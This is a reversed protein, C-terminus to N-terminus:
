KRKYRELVEHIIEPSLQDRREAIVNSLEYRNIERNRKFSQNLLHDHIYFGNSIVVGITIILMILQAFKEKSWQSQSFSAGIFLIVAEFGIYLARYRFLQFHIGANILLIFLAIKGFLATKKRTVSFIFALFVSLVMGFRPLVEEIPLFGGEPGFITLLTAGTNKLINDVYVLMQLLFPFKVNDPYFIWGFLYGSESYDFAQGGFLIGRLLFYALISAVAAGTIWYRHERKTFWVIVIAALPIILGSEKSLFALIFLSTCLLMMPLRRIKRTSYLLFLTLNFILGVMITPRDSIWTAPSVAYMSTGFSAAALTAIWAPVKQQYLFTFLLLANVIHLGLNLAQNPMSWVGVMKYLAWISIAHLPRYAHNGLGWDSVFYRLPNETTSARSLIVLDDGNAPPYSLSPLYLVLLLTIIVICGLIFLGPFKKNIFALPSAATPENM